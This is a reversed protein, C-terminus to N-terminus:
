SSENETEKAKEKEMKSRYMAEFNIPQMLFAAFGGKSILNNLAERAFPLLIHPCSTELVAALTEASPHRIIFIGAQQVEALYLVNDEDKNTITCKLVSEFVGQEEDLTQNIIAVEMEATPTIDTRTFVQPTSPAEFSADKLYVKRTEFVADSKEEVGTKQDAGAENEAM